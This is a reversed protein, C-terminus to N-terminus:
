QFDGSRNRIQIVRLSHRSLVQRLRHLVPCEIPSIPLLQTRLTNSDATGFKRVLDRCDDSPRLQEVACSM